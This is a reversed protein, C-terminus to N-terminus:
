CSRRCEGVAWRSRRSPERHARHRASRVDDGPVGRWGRVAIRQVTVRAGTTAEGCAEGEPIAGPPFPRIDCIPPPKMSLTLTGSGVPPLPSSGVRIMYCTGQVVDTVLLSTGGACETGDQNCALPPDSLAQCDCGEYVALQTNYSAQDCTSVVLEGTFDAAYSYWIDLGLGSSNGDNCIAHNPPGTTACTNDIATDGLSISFAGTCDDNAPTQGGQLCPCLQMAESVCIRDWQTDCCFPDISCVLQCCGSCSDAGCEDDCSPILPTVVYCNGRGLECCSGCLSGATTM